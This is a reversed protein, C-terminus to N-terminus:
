SKPFWDRVIILHTAFFLVVLGGIGFWAGRILLNLAETRDKPPKPLMNTFDQLDNSTSTKSKDRKSGPKLPVRVDEDFMSTLLQEDKDRAENVSDDRGRSPRDGSKSARRRRRSAMAHPTIRPSTVIGRRSPLAFRVPPTFAPHM